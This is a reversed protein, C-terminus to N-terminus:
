RIPSEVGTAGAPKVLARVDVSGGSAFSLHFTVEDGPAIPHRAEMLMLHYGGPAFSISTGPAIDVGDPKIMREVGNERVSRHLIVKLYDPSSAGTLRQMREDDNRLTVYGAAPLGDPLWRVWAASASVPSEAAWSPPGLVTM